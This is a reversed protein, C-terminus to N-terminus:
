APANNLSYNGINSHNKWFRIGNNFIDEIASADDAPIAGGVECGATKVYTYYPRANMNPTMVQNVKYGFMTFYDDIMRAYNSTITKGMFYFDKRQKGNERGVLVNGGQAGGAHPPKRAYDMLTALKGFVGTAMDTVAGADRTRAMGEMASTRADSTKANISSLMLANSAGGSAFSMATSGVTSLVDAGISSKNQALYALFSDIVYSCMPFDKMAMKETVNEQVGKYNIPELIIETISGTIGIMNFQASNGGFFEYRFDAFNGELNTVQIFKYPYCFLKNNKPTYGNVTSYPKSIVKPHEVPDDGDDTVFMKPVMYVGVVGDAKGKSTLDIIWDDLTSMSNTYNYHVGSYIGGYRGGGMIQPKEAELDDLDYTCALCYGFGYAGQDSSMWGSAEVFEYKYDGCPIGEDAINAGIADNTVHQREVFCQSLTFVGMWTMLPDPEFNIQTCENNIYEVDKVFAYFWKNEFSTNKYRMYRATYVSAMSRQIRVYGRQERTYSMAPVNALKALGDFYTDKASNSAFYLSDHYNDSLNIDGFLQVTSNPAVYAM